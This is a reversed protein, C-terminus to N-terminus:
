TTLVTHERQRLPRHSTRFALMHVFQLLALHVREAQRLIHRFVIDAMELLLCMRVRFIRVRQETHPQHIHAQLVILQRLLVQFLRHFETRELRIDVIIERQRQELSMVRLMDVRLRRVTDLLPQM